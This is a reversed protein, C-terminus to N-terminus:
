ETWVQHRPRVQKEVAATFVLLFRMEIAIETSYDTKIWFCTSSYCSVKLVAVDGTDNYPEDPEPNVPDYERPVYVSEVRVRVAKPDRLDNIGAVVTFRLNEFQGEDDIVCHAATLVFRDDIIAGGCLHNEDVQISVAYPFQGLYAEEGGIIGEAKLAEAELGEM